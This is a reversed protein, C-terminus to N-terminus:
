DLLDQIGRRSGMYILTYDVNLILALLEGNNLGNLNMNTGKKMNIKRCMNCPIEETTGGKKERRLANKEANIKLIRESVTQVILDM